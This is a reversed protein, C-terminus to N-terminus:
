RSVARKAQDVPSRKLGSYSNAVTTVRQAYYVSEGSPDIIKEAAIRLTPMDPFMDVFRPDKFHLPDDPNPDCVFLAICQAGIRFNNPLFRRTTKSTLENMRTADGNAPVPMSHKNLQEM